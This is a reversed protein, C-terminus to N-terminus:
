LGLLKRIRLMPVKIIAEFIIKKPNDHKSISPGNLIENMDIYIRCNM